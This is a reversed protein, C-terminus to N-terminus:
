NFDGGNDIKKLSGNDIYLIYSTLAIATFEFTEASSRLAESPEIVVSISSNFNSPNISGKPDVTKLDLAFSYMYQGRNRTPVRCAAHYPETFVFHEAPLMPVRYRDGCKIGIKSLASVGISRVGNNSKPLGVEYYDLYESHTINRVGFFLAKLIGSSHEIDYSLTSGAETPKLIETAAIDTPKEMLIYHPSCSTRDIEFDTVVAFDAVVEFKTIEPPTAFDGDTLMNIFGTGAGTDPVNEKILLDSLKRFVFEVTVRNNVMMGIPLAVGSDRSFYLPIPLVLTKAGINASRSYQFDGGVMNTYADYNGGDIMFESWTDMFNSSLEVLPKADVKLRISKILKHALKPFYSSETGAAYTNLTGASISIYATLALLYDGSANIPMTYTGGFKNSGNGTNLLVPMKSFAACPRIERVFYTTVQEDPGYIYSDITGRKNVDSRLESLTVNSVVPTEPKSTM